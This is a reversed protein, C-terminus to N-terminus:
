LASPARVQAKKDFTDVFLSDYDSKFFDLHNSRSGIINGKGSVANTHGLEGIM